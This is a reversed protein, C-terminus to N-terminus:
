FNIENWSPNPTMASNLKLEEDVPIPLAFQYGNPQVTVDYSKGFMMLGNRSVGLGYRKMDLWRLDTHFAFERRRENIIEQNLDTGTYDSNIGRKRRFANLLDRAETESAGQKNKFTAEINILYAEEPRFLSFAAEYSNPWDLLPRVITNDPQINAQYRYDDPSFIALLDPSAHPRFPVDGYPQGYTQESFATYGGWRQYVPYNAFAGNLSNVYDTATAPLIVGKLAEVAYRKADAYDTSEQAGSEAKYWYVQALLNNIYRKNYFINYDADPVATSAEAETLQALIFDFVEKQSSRPTSLGAFPGQVGTYVPIGTQADKYPAFYELLKFYYIARCVLMENRLQEKGSQDGGAKDLADLLVNLFGISRYHQVWIKTPITFDNMLILKAASKGDSVGRASIYTNYDQKFDINDSYFEFLSWYSPIFFLIDGITNHYNASEGPKMVKLYGALSAKVDAVTELPRQNKPDVELYKSCSGLTLSFFGLIILYKYQM